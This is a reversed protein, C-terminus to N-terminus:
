LLIDPNYFSKSNKPFGALHYSVTDITVLSMKGGLVCKGGKM